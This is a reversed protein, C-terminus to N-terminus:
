VGQMGLFVRIILQWSLCIKWMQFSGLSTHWVEGDIYRGIRIERGMEVGLHIEWGIGNHMCLRVEVGEGIWTMPDVSVTGGGILDLRVMTWGEVVVLMLLFIPIKQDALKDLTIRHGDERHDM